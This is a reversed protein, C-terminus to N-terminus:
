VNICAQSIEVFYFDCCAININFLHVINYLFALHIIFRWKEMKRIGVSLINQWGGGRGMLATICSVGELTYLSCCM